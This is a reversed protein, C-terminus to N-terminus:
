AEGREGEERRCRRGGKAGGVARRTQAEQARIGSRHFAACAVLVHDTLGRARPNRIVRADMKMRAGEGRGRRRGDRRWARTKGGDRGDNLTEGDGIGGRAPCRLRVGSRRRRRGGGRASSSRGCLDISPTGDVRACVNARESARGRVMTALGRSSSLPRTSRARAGVARVRPGERPCRDRGM